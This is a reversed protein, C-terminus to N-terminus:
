WVISFKCSGPLDGIIAKLLGAHSIGARWKLRGSNNQGKDILGESELL